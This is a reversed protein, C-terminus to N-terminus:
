KPEWPGVTMNRTTKTTYSIVNGCADTKVDELTPQGNTINVQRHLQVDKAPFSCGGSVQDLAAEDLPAPNPQAPSPPNEM